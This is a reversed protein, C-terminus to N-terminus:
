RCLRNTQPLMACSPALPRLLTSPAPPTAIETKPTETPPTPAGTLNPIVLNEGPTIPMVPPGGAPIVGTPSPAPSGITARMSGTLGVQDRAIVEVYYSASAMAPKFQVSKKSGTVPVNVWASDPADVPKYRVITGAEEPFKEEVIWEVSIEDGSKKASAIRVVPPTGDLFLRHDPPTRTIDSPVKKGDIMVAQMKCWFVGDDKATYKFTEQEPLATAELEWTQGQDRSVYLLMRQVNKRSAPDYVIDLEVIRSPVPTPKTPDAPAAAPPTAPAAVPPVAAPPVDPPTPITASPPAIMTASPAAISPPVVPAQGAM